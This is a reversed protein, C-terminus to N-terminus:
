NPLTFNDLRPIILLSATSTVASLTQSDVGTAVVKTVTIVGNTTNLIEVMSLNRM